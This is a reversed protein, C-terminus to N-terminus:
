GRSGTAPPAALAWACLAVASLQVVTFLMVDCGRGLRAVAIINAACFVAGLLTFGDGVSITLPIRKVFLFIFNFSSKLLILTYVSGVSLLHTWLGFIGAVSAMAM